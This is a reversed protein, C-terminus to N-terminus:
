NMFCPFYTLGSHSVEPGGPNHGHPYKHGDDDEDSGTGSSIPVGIITPEPINSEGDEGVVASPLTVGSEYTPQANQGHNGDPLNGVHPGGEGPLNGVHPGPGTGTAPGNHGNLESDNPLEYGTSPGSLGSPDNQPGAKGPVNGVNTGAIASPDRVNPGSNEPIYGVQPGGQGPANGRRPANPESPYGSKSPLVVSNANNFSSRSPNNDHGEDSNHDYPTDLASNSPSVANASASALAIALAPAALNRFHM